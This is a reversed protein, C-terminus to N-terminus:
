VTDVDVVVVAQDGEGCRFSVGYTQGGEDGTLAPCGEPARGDGHSGRSM